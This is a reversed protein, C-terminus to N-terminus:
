IGHKLIDPVEAVNVTNNPQIIRQSEERDQLRGVVTILATFFTIAGCSILFIKLPFKSNQETSNQNETSVNVM